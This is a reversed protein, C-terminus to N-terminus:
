RFNPMVEKAFLEMSRLVKAHKMSGFSMSAGFYGISHDKQLKAIKQVCQDPTGFYATTELESEYSPPDVPRTRRWHDLDVNIEEGHTLTRRFGGLDRIWTLSERPYERGEKEDESLYVFRFYPMREINPPKGAAACREAYLSFLGLNDAEPTSFSTLIPLDRSVAVDVSAPTRSVALFVPPHPKQVPSPALTVDNVQYFEGHYSFRPTTWLGLIIDLAEQSRADRSDFDIQFNGYEYATSGRGVGFELRGGSLVDMMASEEALFIPNHFPLVSVGAGIRIKKTKAAVYTLIPMLSPFIGYRSSHHEAIWVSDFGLEEAYQIQEVAEGYIRSQASADPETWSALIFLAFKM